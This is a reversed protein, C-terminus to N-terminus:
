QGVECTPQILPEPQEGTATPGHRLPLLRQSRCDVPRVGEERASLLDQQRAQRNEGSAEVQRGGLLYAPEPGDVGKVDECQQARQHILAQHATSDAPRM